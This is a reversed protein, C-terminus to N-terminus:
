SIVCWDLQSSSINFVWQLECWNTYRCNYDFRHNTSESILERQDRSHRILPKATEHPPPFPGLPVQGDGDKGGSEGDEDEKEGEVGMRGGFM